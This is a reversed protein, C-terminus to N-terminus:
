LLGVARGRDPPGADQALTDAALGVLEQVVVVVVTFTVAPVVASIVTDTVAGEESMLVLEPISEADVIAEPLLLTEESVLGDTVLLLMVLDDAPGVVVLAGVTEGVTVLTGGFASM